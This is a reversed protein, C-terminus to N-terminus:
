TKKWLSIRFCRGPNHTSKGDIVVNLNYDECLRFMEKIDELGMHYPESILVVQIDEAVLQEEMSLHDLWGGALGRMYGQIRSLGSEEYTPIGLYRKLNGPTAHM